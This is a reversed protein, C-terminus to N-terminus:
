INFFYRLPCFSARFSTLFISIHFSQFISLHCKKTPAADGSCGM